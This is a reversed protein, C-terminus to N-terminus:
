MLAHNANVILSAVHDFRVLVCAIEFLPSTKVRIVGCKGSLRLEMIGSEDPLQSPRSRILRFLEPFYVSFIGDM